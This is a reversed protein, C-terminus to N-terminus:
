HNGTFGNKKKIIFVFIIYTTDNSGPVLCLLHIGVNKNNDSLLSLIM